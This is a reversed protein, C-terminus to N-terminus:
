FIHLYPITYCVHSCWGKAFITHKTNRHDYMFLILWPLVFLVQIWDLRHINFFWVPLCPQTIMTIRTPGFPTFLRMYMWLSHSAPPCLDGAPNKAWVYNTIKINKSQISWPFLSWTSFPFFAKHFMSLFLNILESVLLYDVVDLSSILINELYNHRCYNM